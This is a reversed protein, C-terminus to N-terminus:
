LRMCPKAGLQQYGCNVGVADSVKGFVRLLHVPYAVSAEEASGSAQRKVRIVQAMFGAACTHRGVDGRLSVWPMCRPNDLDCGRDETAAWTTCEFAALMDPLPRGISISMRMSTRVPAGYLSRARCSRVSGYKEREAWAASIRLAHDARAPARPFLPAGLAGPSLRAEVWRPTAATAPWRGMPFCNHRELAVVIPSLRGCRFCLEKGPREMWLVRHEWWVRLGLRMPASSKVSLVKLLSSQGGALFNVRPRRAGFRHM